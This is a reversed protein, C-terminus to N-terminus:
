VVTPKNVKALDQDADFACATVLNAASAGTAGLTTSRYYYRSDRYPHGKRAM